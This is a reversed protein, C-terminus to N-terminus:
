CLYCFNGLWIDQLPVTNSSKMKLIRALIEWCPTILLPKESYWSMIAIPFSTSNFSIAIPFSASSFSFTYIFSNLETLKLIVCDNSIFIRLFIKKWVIFMKFIDFLLGEFIVCMTVFTVHLCVTNCLCLFKQVNNIGRHLFLRFRAIEWM